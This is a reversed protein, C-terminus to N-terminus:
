DDLNEVDEANAHLVGENDALSIGEHDLEDKASTLVEEPGPPKGNSM